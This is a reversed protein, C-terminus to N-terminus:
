IKQRETTSNRSDGQLVAFLIMKNRNFTFIEWVMYKMVMGSDVGQAYHVITKSSTGAPSHSLLLPLMNQFLVSKGFLTQHVELSHDNQYRVM